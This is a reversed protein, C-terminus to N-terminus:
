SRKEWQVAPWCNKGRVKKLSLAMFGVIAMLGGTGEMVWGAAWGLSAEPWYNTLQFWHLKQQVYLGRTFRMNANAFWGSDSLCFQCRMLVVVCRWINVYISFIFGSYGFRPVFYFTYWWSIFDDVKHTNLILFYDLMVFPHWDTGNWVRGRVESRLFDLGATLDDWSLCWYCDLAVNCCLTFFCM